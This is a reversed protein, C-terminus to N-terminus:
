KDKPPRRPRAPSIIEAGLTAAAEDAGKHVADFFGNGLARRSSASASNTLAARAKAPLSRGDGCGAIMVAVLSAAGVLMARRLMGM